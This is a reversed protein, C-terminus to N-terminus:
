FFKSVSTGLSPLPFSHYVVHGFPSGSSTLASAKLDLEVYGDLQLHSMRLPTSMTEPQDAYGHLLSVVHLIM